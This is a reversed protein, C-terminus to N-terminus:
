TVVGHSYDIFLTLHDALQYVAATGKCVTQLKLEKSVSLSFMVEEGSQLLCVVCRVTSNHLIWLILLTETTVLLHETYWVTVWRLLPFLSQVEANFLPEMHRPSKKEERQLPPAEQLCLESRMFLEPTEKVGYFPSIRCGATQVQGFRLPHTSSPKRQIFSIDRQSATWTWTVCITSSVCHVESRTFKKAGVNWHVRTVSKVTFERRCLVAAAHVPKRNEFHFTSSYQINLLFYFM